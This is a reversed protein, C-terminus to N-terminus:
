RPNGGKMKKVEQFVFKKIAAEYVKTAKNIGVEVRDYLDDMNFRDGFEEGVEGFFQDEYWADLGENTYDALLGAVMESVNKADNSM